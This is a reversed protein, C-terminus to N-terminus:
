DSEIFSFTQGLINLVLLNANINTITYEQSGISELQINLVSEEGCDSSWSGEVFGDILMTSTILFSGDENFNWQECAEYDPSFTTASDCPTENINTNCYLLCVGSSGDGYSYSLDWSGYLLCENSNANDGEECGFFFVLPIFLFLLNKM